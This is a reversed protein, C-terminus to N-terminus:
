GARAAAKAAAKLARAVRRTVRKKLGRVAVFFFPQAPRGAAGFEVFRSYFLDTFVRARLRDPMVEFDTKISDRLDGDDVPALAQARQAIEDAGKNLSKVLAPGTDSRLRRMSRLASDLGRLHKTDRAM